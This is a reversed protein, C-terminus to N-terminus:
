HEVLGLEESKKWYELLATFEEIESQSATLEFIKDSLSDIRKFDIPTM